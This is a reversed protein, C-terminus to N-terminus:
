PSLWTRGRDSDSSGSAPVACHGSARWTKRWDTERPIARVECLGRACKSIDVDGDGAMENAWWKISSGHDKLGAPISGENHRTLGCYEYVGDLNAATQEDTTDDADDTEPETM